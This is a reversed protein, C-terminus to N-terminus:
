AAKQQDADDGPFSDDVPATLVAKRADKAAVIQARQGEDTIAKIAADFAGKLGSMNSAAKITNTFAALEDASVAASQHHQEQAPDQAQTGADNDAETDGHLDGKHWLDLAAGFRMAANRLADGIVEKERAGPDQNPKSAAHGYGLRTVGCVTLKIWLGGTQDFAPLGDRLAAPEWTWDPDADLLRDTLAAHGVYDLHVVDKHHWAGCLQCRIGLKFDAKVADTQAKTPKPLKSIHNAAFPQRLLDLGTKAKETM